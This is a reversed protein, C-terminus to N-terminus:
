LQLMLSTAMLLHKIKVGKLVSATASTETPTLTFANTRGSRVTIASLVSAAAPAVTATISPAVVTNLQSAQTTTIQGEIVIATSTSYGTISSPDAILDNVSAASITLSM